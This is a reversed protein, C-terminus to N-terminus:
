IKDSVASCLLAQHKAAHATTICRYCSMIHSLKNCTLVDMIHSILYTLAKQDHLV